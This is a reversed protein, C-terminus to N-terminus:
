LASKGNYRRDPWRTGNSLTKQHGRFEFHRRGSLHSRSSSKELLELIGEWHPGALMGDKAIDTYILCTLGLAELEQAFEVAKLESTATWGKQAVMGQACDLSVAIHSKWLRLIDKLFNRDEIVKTGLIIRQIGGELLKQIDEKRRVGGGMQVPIAVSRAIDLIINLNKIEGDRAGDLDVVHLWQAGEEQWHQAMAVPDKSYETIRDFRGQLLRVVKGEKIDIAPFIIM